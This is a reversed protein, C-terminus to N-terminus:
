QVRDCERKYRNNVESDKSTCVRTSIAMAAVWHARKSGGLVFIVYPEGVFHSRAVFVSPTASLEEERGRDSGVTVGVAIATGHPFILGAAFAKRDPLKESIM